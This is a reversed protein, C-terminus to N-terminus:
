NISGWNATVFEKLETKFREKDFKQVSAKISTEEFAGKRCLEDFERMKELFHELELKEFFM